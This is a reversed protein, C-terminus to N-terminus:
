EEYGIVSFSSTFTSLSMWFVGTPGLNVTVQRTGRGDTITITHDDNRGWPNRLQVQDSARDFAMVTYVHQDELGPAGPSLLTTATVVKKPTAGLAASLKTRTEGDPTCWFWDHDV